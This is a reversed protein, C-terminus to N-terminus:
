AGAHARARTSTPPTTWRSRRRTSWRRGSRCAWSWRGCSSWSSAGSWRRPRRPASGSWRRAAIATSASTGGSRGTAMSPRAPSISRAARAAAPQWPWCRRSWTPIPRPRRALGRARGRHRHRLRSRRWCTARLRRDRAPDVFPMDGQLNIVVDHRATRTWRALAAVIRDSGSPLDPDTLVARGGAAEVADVIEPM